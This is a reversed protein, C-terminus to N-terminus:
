DDDEEVNDENDDYEWDESMKNVGSRGKQCFNRNIKMNLLNKDRRM